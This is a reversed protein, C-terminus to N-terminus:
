APGVRARRADRDSAWYSAAAVAIWILLTGDFYTNTWPTRIAMSMPAVAAVIWDTHAQRSCTRSFWRLGLALGIWALPGLWPGIENVFPYIVSYNNFPVGVDVFPDVALTTEPSRLGVLRAIKFPWYFIVQRIETPGECLARDLVAPPGTIYLLLALV